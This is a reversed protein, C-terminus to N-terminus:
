SEGSLDLDVGSNYLILEDIWGDTRDKWKM